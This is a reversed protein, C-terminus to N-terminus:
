LRAMNRIPSKGGMCGLCFACPNWRYLQYTRYENYEIGINAIKFGVEMIRQETLACLFRQAGNKRASELIQYGWACVMKLGLYGKRYERRLAITKVILNPGDQFAYIYGIAKETAREYLIVSYDFVTSPQANANIAPKFVFEFNEQPTTILNSDYFPKGIFAPASIDWLIDAQQKLTEKKLPRLEYQENLESHIPHLAEFNDTPLPIMSTISKKCPLFSAKAFIEQYVRPTDPEWSGMKEDSQDVRLRYPFFTSINVPGYVEEVKAERTLWACAERMLALGIEEYNPVSLDVEFFGMYGVKPSWCSVNAGVRGVIRERMHRSRSPIVALWYECKMDRWAPSSAFPSGSETVLKLDLHTRAHTHEQLLTSPFSAFAMNFATPTNYSRPLRGSRSYVEFMCPQDKVQPIITEEHHDQGDRPSPPPTAASVGAHLGINTPNTRRQSLLNAPHALFDRITNFQKFATIKRKQARNNVRSHHSASSAHQHSEM